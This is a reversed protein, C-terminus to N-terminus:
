TARHASFLRLTSQVPFVVACFLSCSGRDPLPSAAAHGMGTPSRIIVITKGRVAAPRDASPDAM